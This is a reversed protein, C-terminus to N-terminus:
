LTPKKSVPVCSVHIPSAYEEIEAKHYMCQQRSVTGQTVVYGKDFIVTLLYPDKPKLQQIMIGAAVAGCVVGVLFIAINTKGPTTIKM